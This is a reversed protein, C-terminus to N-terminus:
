LELLVGNIRHIAEQRILFREEAHAVVFNVALERTDVAVNTRIAILDAGAPEDQGAQHRLALVHALLVEAIRVRVFQVAAAEIAHHELADDTELTLAFSRTM